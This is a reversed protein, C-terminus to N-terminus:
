TASNTFCKIPHTGADLLDGDFRCFALFGVQHADAWRENLRLLTIDKVRRILYKGFDGFLVSKANAAMAPVDNNITIPYGLLTDPEGSLPAGVSWIPIGTTDKIKRIGKIATDAMMFRGNARYNRDVSYVLDVIDDYTVSTATGTAGAKGVTAATVVGNPQNTGTGITFHENLIRGLREGLMSGVLTDMDFASDQMLEVPVLVADSSYKYADFTINGFVIGTQTAPTNIALLRGKNSTDDTTPWDMPAGTSTDIVRGAELMGGYFLMARELENSFARAILYGGGTTTVTQPARAERARRGMRIEGGTMAFSLVVESGAGNPTFTLASREEVTLAAAGYAAWRRFARAEVAIATEAAPVVPAPVMGAQSAPVIARDEDAAREARDITAKLRDVEAFVRDVEITEEPTLGRAEATAKALIVNAQEGLRKRTERLGKTDM